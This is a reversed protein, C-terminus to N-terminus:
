SEVVPCRPVGALKMACVRHQGNGVRAGGNWIIPEWIFGYMAEETDRDMGAVQAASSLHELSFRDSELLAVATRAALLWDPQHYPCAAVEEPTLGLVLSRTAAQRGSEDSGDLVDAIRERWPCRFLDSPWPLAEVDAIRWDEGVSM